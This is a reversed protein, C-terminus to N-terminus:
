SMRATLRRSLTWALRNRESPVYSRRVGKSPSGLMLECSQNRLRQFTLDMLQLDKPARSINPSSLTKPTSLSTPSSPLNAGKPRRSGDNMKNGDARWPHLVLFAFARILNFPWDLMLFRRAIAGASEM